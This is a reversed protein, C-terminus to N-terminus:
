STARQRAAEREWSALVDEVLTMLNKDQEHEEEKKEEERPELLVAMVKRMVYDRNRESKRAWRLMTMWAPSQSATEEGEKADLNKFVWMLQAPLQAKPRSSKGKPRGSRKGEFNEARGKKM